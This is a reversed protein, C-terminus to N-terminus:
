STEFLVRREILESLVSRMKDISVPKLILGDMGVRLCSEKTVKDSNGTLVVMFPREHSKAFKERIRITLEYGDVGPTCIDM